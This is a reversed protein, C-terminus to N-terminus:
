LVLNAQNLLHSLDGVTRYRKDSQNNGHKHSFVTVSPVVLVPVPFPISSKRGTNAPYWKKVLIIRYGDHKCAYEKNCSPISFFLGRPVSRRQPKAQLFPDWCLTMFLSQQADAPSGLFVNFAVYSQSNRKKLPPSSGQNNTDYSSAFDGCYRHRRLKLIILYDRINIGCEKHLLSSSNASGM